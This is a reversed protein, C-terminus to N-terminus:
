KRPNPTVVKRNDPLTVSLNGDRRKAFKVPLLMPRDEDTPNPAVLYMCDVSGGRDHQAIIEGLFVDGKVKARRDSALFTGTPLRDNSFYSWSNQRFVMRYWWAGNGKANLDKYGATIQVPDSEPAEVTNTAIDCALALLEEPTM